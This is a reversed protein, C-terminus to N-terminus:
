QINKGGSYLESLFATVEVTKGEKYVNVQKIYENTKQLASLDEREAITGVITVVEGIFMQAIDELLAEKSDYHHYFGGKSLGAEDIINNITINEYGKKAFLNLAIQIIQAKREEPLLRKKM